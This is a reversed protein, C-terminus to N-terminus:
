PALKAVAVDFGTDVPASVGTGLDVEGQVSALLYVSDSDDVDVDDLYQSAPDGYRAQAVPEGVEDFRVLFLDTKGASVLPPGGASMTEEFDGAVVIQGTGDVAVAKAIQDGPGGLARAFMVAGGPDFRVLFADAGGGSTLPGSGFDITGEFSGVVVLDGTPADVAVDTARQSAGDGFLRAWALEGGVYSAVLADEGGGFAAEPAEELAGGAYGVVAVAGTEGLAVAVLSDDGSSGLRRAVNPSGNPTYFALLGDLGGVASLDVDSDFSSQFDGVAVIEDSADFALGLVRNSERRNLWSVTQDDLLAVWLDPDDGADQGWLYGAAAGGLATKNSQSSRAIAFVEQLKADGERASAVLAGSGDLRFSLVDAIGSSDFTVDDVTM